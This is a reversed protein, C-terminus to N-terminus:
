LILCFIVGLTETLFKELPDGPDSGSISPAFDGISTYSFKAITPALSLTNIYLNKVSLFVQSSIWVKIDGSVM